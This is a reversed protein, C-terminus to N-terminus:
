QLTNPQKIKEFGLEDGIIDAFELSLQERVRGGRIAIGLLGANGKLVDVYLETLLEKTKPDYVRVTGVLQDTDGILWVLGRNALKFNDIEIEVDAYLEQDTDRIELREKVIETLAEKLPLYEIEGEKGDEAGEVALEEDAAILIPKGIESYTVTVNQINRVGIDQESLPKVVNTPNVCAALTFLLSVASILRLM